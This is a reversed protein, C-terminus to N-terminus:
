RESRERSAEDVAEAIRVMLMGTLAEMRERRGGNPVDDPHLPEGFAITVPRFRVGKADRPLAEETGAIGVPVITAGTRLAIMAAGGLGEQVEGEGRTGEPFIGVLASRELRRSAESVAQRDAEGRRVPFAKLHRLVWAFWPPGEFLEIKAMYSIPRRTALALLVPDLYSVHNGSVIVPGTSPLRDRQLFHLRFAVRLPVYLLIWVARFFM